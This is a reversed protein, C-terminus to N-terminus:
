RWRGGATRSSRKVPAQRGTVEPRTRRAHGRDPRAASSPWARLFETQVDLMRALLGTARQNDGRADAARLQDRLRALERKLERVALAFEEPQGM